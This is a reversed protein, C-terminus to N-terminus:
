RSFAIEAVRRLVAARADSEATSDGLFAVIVVWSGDAKRAIGVDNTAASMGKWTSSTGTKHGLKWGIPVGAALRDPGTETREMVELLFKTSKPSLLKGTVLKKLLDAMARPTSTDRPDKRYADYARDKTSNSVKAMAATFRDPDVFEQKWQLGVIESQLDREQRDFSIGAIGNRVLFNQVIKPGGMKRIMFDGSASCSQTVTMEILEALTVKTSNGSGLMDMIPQPYFSLDSRNFVFSQNLRWKGRDVLELAALSVLLKMVSQISFREDARSYAAGNSTVIAAGLRGQTGRALHNLEQQISGSQFVLSAALLHSLM